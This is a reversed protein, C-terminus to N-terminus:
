KEIFFKIASDIDSYCYGRRLLSSILKKKSEYDKLKEKHKKSILTKIQEVFDCDIQLVVSRALDKDIGKKTIELIALNKGKNKKFILKQALNTAYKFDDVIGRKKMYKIVYNAIEKETHKILKEYLEKESHDRYNLIDEAKKKALKIKKILEFKKIYEPGYEKKDQIKLKNLTKEHFIGIEKEDAFVRYYKDKVKKITILM